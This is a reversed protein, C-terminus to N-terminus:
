LLEDATSRARDHLDAAVEDYIAMLRGPEVLQYLGLRGSRRRRVMGARKLIALHQSADHRSIEVEAALDGVSAEGLRELADIIRVRVPQSMVWLHRGVLEASRPTVPRSLM